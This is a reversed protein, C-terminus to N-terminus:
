FHPSEEAKRSTPMAGHPRGRPRGPNSVPLPGPVSRSFRDWVGRFACPGTPCRAPAPTSGGAHPLASARPAVLGDRVDEQFALWADPSGEGGQKPAAAPDVLQSEVRGFAHLEYSGPHATPPIM